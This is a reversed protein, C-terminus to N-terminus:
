NYEFIQALARNVLKKKQTTPLKVFDKSKMQLFGGIGCCPLMTAKNVVLFQIPPVDKKWLKALDLLSAGICGLVYNLNRPNYFNLDFLPCSFLKALLQALQAASIIKEQLVFVVASKNEAAAKEIFGKAKEESIIQQQVLIRLLGSDM